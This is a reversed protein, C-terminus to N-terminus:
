VAGVEFDHERGGRIVRARAVWDSEVANKLKNNREKRKLNSCSWM